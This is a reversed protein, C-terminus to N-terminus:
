IHKYCFTTSNKNEDQKNPRSNLKSFSVNGLRMPHNEKSHPRTHQICHYILLRMWVASALLDSVMPLLSHAAEPPFCIIENKM